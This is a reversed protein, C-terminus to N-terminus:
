LIRVLYPSGSGRTKWVSVELKELYLIKLIGYSERGLELDYMEYIWKSRRLSPKM